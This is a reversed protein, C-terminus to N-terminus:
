CCSKANVIRTSYRATRFVGTSHGFIRHLYLSCGSQGKLLRFSKVFAFCRMPFTRVTHDRAPSDLCRDGGKNVTASVFDCTSCTQM